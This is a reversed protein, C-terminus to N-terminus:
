FIQYAAKKVFAYFKWVLNLDTYETNITTAFQM